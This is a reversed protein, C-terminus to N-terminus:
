KNVLTVLQVLPPGALKDKYVYVRVELPTEDPDVVRVTYWTRKELRIPASVLNGLQKIQRETLALNKVKEIEERALASATSLDDTYAIQDVATGYLQMLPVVAVGLVLLTILIEVFTFGRSHRM